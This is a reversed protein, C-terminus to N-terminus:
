EYLWIITTLQELVQSVWEELHQHWTEYPHRLIWSSREEATSISMYLSKYEQLPNKLMERHRDIAQRHYGTGIQNPDDFYITGDATCAIVDGTCPTYRNIINGAEDAIIYTDVTGAPVRYLHLSQAHQNQM